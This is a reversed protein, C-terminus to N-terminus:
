YSATEVSEICGWHLTSFDVCEWPQMELSKLGNGRWQKGTTADTSDYRFEVDVIEPFNRKLYDVFDIQRYDRGLADGTNMSAVFGSIIERKKRESKYEDVFGRKVSIAVGFIPAFTSAPAVIINEGLPTGHERQLYTQLPYQPYDSIFSGDNNKALIAIRVYSDATAKAYTAVIRRDLRKCIFDWGISTIAVCPNVQASKLTKRFEEDDFEPPIAIQNREVVSIANINRGIEDDACSYIAGTVFNALSDFEISTMAVKHQLNTVVESDENTVFAVGDISFETGRPVPIARAQTFAISFTAIAPRGANRNIGMRAGIATLDDGKAYDIDNRKWYEIMASNQTAIAYAIADCFIRREDGPMLIEGIRNEVDAVIRNRIAIADTEIIEAM